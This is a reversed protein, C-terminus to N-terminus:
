SGSRCRLDAARGAARQRDDGLRARVVDVAADEAEEAVRREARLAREIQLLVVVVRAVLEAEREAARDRVVLEEVEGRDLLDVLVVDDEETRAARERRLRGVDAMREVLRQEEAAEVVFM